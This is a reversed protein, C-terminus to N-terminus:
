IETVSIGRAALDDCVKKVRSRDCDTIEYTDSVKDMFTFTVRGEKDLTVSRIYKEDLWPNLSEVFHDLSCKKM